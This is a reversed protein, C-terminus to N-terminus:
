VYSKHANTFCFFQTVPKKAINAKNQYDPVWSLSDRLYAQVFCM